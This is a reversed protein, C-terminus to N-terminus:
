GSVAYSFCAPMGVLFILLGSTLFGQKWEKQKENGTFMASMAILILSHFLIVLAAVIYEGHNTLFFMYAVYIAINGLVIWGFTKM